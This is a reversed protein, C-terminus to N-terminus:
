CDTRKLQIYDLPLVAFLPSTVQDVHGLVGVIGFHRRKRALDHASLAARATPVDIHPRVPFLLRWALAQRALLPPSVAIIFRAARPNSM